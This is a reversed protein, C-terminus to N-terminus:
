QLMREVLAESVVAVLVNEPTFLKGFGADGNVVDGIGDGEVSELGVLSEEVLGLFTQARQVLKAVFEVAIRPQESRRFDDFRQM